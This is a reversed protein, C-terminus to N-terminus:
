IFVFRKYLYFSAVAILVSAVMQSLFYWVGLFEVFVFVLITNLGLNGLAIGFYLALQRHVVHLTTDGFTFFKQLIFSTIFGLIFALASGLLYYTGLVEVFLLISLLNVGAATSGAILYKVYM